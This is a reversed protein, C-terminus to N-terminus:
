ELWMKFYAIAVEPYNQLFGCFQFSKQSNPDLCSYCGDLDVGGARDKRHSLTALDSVAPRM